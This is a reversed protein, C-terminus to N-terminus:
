EEEDVGKSDMADNRSFALIAAGLGFITVLLGIALGLFPIARLLVYLVLGLLLPWIWYRAARPALRELILLGGLYSVIVKSIFLAFLLFVSFALWTSSFGLGWTAVALGNLTITALGIGMALFLVFLLIAGAFGTIFGVFGYLGSAVPRTRLRDSWRYFRSPMIWATLAGVILYQVLLRGQELSWSVVEDRNVQGGPPQAEDQVTAQYLLGGAPRAFKAQKSRTLGTLRIGDQPAAQATADEEAEPASERPVSIRLDSINPQIDFAQLLRNVIEVLGIVAKVDRGVNGNLQAGLTGAVLDRGIQSDSQTILRAGTFYASRGIAAQDGAEFTIAGSFVSGDVEGNVNVTEALTVLSGDVNGNVTVTRGIALVDGQVTGDLVVDDGILFADNEFTTGAPVSSGGMIQQAQAARTFTFFSFFMIALVLWLRKRSPNFNPM